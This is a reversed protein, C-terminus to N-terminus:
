HVRMQPLLWELLDKFVEANMSHSSFSFVERHVQKVLTQDVERMEKPMFRTQAHVSDTKGQWILPPRKFGLHNAKMAQATPLKGRRM